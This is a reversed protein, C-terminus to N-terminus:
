CPGQALIVRVGLSRISNKQRGEDNERDGRAQQEDRTSAQERATRRCVPMRQKKTETEARARRGAGMRRARTETTETETETEPRALLM